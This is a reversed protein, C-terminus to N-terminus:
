YVVGGGLFFGDPKATLGVPQPIPPAGSKRNDIQSKRGDNQFKFNGAELPSSM